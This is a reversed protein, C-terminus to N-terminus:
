EKKVVCTNIDRISGKLDGFGNGDSDKFSPVFIHYTLAKHWWTEPTPRNEELHYEEKLRELQKVNYMNVVLLFIGIFVFLLLYIFGQNLAAKRRVEPPLTKWLDNDKEVKEQTSLLNDLDSDDDDYLKRSYRDPQLHRKRTDIPVTYNM